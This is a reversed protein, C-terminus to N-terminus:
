TSFPHLIVGLPQLSSPLDASPQFYFHLVKTYVRALIKSIAAPFRLPTAEDENLFGRGMAVYKVKGMLVFCPQKTEWGGAAM